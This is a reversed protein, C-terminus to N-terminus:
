KLYGLDKWVAYNKRFAALSEWGKKFMPNKAIEEALVENWGKEYAALIEPSWKKIQVGKSQMEQIAAFQTAEGEAIMDRMNDGCAMEIVAKQSDSLGDWTKKGILVETFTSQQHWGPFYYFKAVQYFGLKIDMSPMSFETADITGLQLAQFIDGPALLQTAVGYKEMVKAGLGVFRMKLGKLDALIKIEKRFWGSAEPALLGCQIQVINYKAFLETGFQKGGGYYYWALFEGTGPGFPVTGVLNFATDKGSWFAPASWAMQISGSSVADFVQLAPVLAGPENFKIDLGSSTIRNVRKVFNAGGTGVIPLSSAFASALDIRVKKEQAVASSVMIAATFASLLMRLKM